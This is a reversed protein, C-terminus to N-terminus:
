QRQPTWRGTADLTRVELGLEQILELSVHVRGTRSVECDCLAITAEVMEEMSEVQDTTVVDGVLVRAGESMVVSRPEIVNV